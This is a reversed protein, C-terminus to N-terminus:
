EGNLAAVFDNSTRDQEPETRREGADLPGTEDSALDTDGIRRDSDAPPLDSEPHRGITATQVPEEERSGTQEILHQELSGQENPDLNALTAASAVLQTLPALELKARYLGFGLALDRIKEPNIGTAKALAKIQRSAWPPLVLKLSEVSCGSALKAPKRMGTVM